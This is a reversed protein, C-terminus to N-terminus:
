NRINANATGKIDELRFRLDFCTGKGDRGPSYEFSGNLQNSLTEILNYGLGHMNRDTTFNPPLGSGDDEVRIHVDKGKSYLKLYISGESSLHFAHEFVNTIVENLILSCPHAQNINMKVPKIEMIVRTIDAIDQYRDSLTAMIKELNLGFNIRTLSKSEFLLEHMNALSKIRGVSSNLRTQVRKDQENGAQIEMLGSIIALNNKVRHHLESLLVTKEEQAKNLEYETERFATVDTGTIIFKETEGFIDKFPKMQVNIIFAEGSKKRSLLEGKWEKGDALARGFEMSLPAETLDSILFSSSHGKLIEEKSFQTVEIFKKNVFEIIGYADTILVMAPSMNLAQVFQETDQSDLSRSIVNINKAGKKPIQYADQRYEQGFYSWAMYGSRHNFPLESINCASYDPGFSSIESVWKYDDNSNELPRGKDHSPDKM